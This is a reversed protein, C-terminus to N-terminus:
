ITIVELWEEDIEKQAILWKENNQFLSEREKIYLVKFESSEM